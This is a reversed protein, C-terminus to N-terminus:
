LNPTVTAFLAFTRASGYKRPIRAALHDPNSWSAEGSAFYLITDSTTTLRFVYAIHGKDALLGAQQMALRLDPNARLFGQDMDTTGHIILSPHM